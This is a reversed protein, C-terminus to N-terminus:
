RSRGAVGTQQVARFSALQCTECQDARVEGAIVHPNMRRDLTAAVMLVCPSQSASFRVTDGEITGSAVHGGLTISLMAGTQSVAFSSAGCMPGTELNWNGGVHMPPKLNRGAEFVGALVLLPVGVALVYYFIIRAPIKPM